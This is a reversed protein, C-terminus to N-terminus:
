NYDINFTEWTFYPNKLFAGAIHEVPVVCHMAVLVPSLSIVARVFIYIYSDEEGILSKALSLLSWSIIGDSLALQPSM